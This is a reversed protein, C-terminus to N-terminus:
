VRTSLFRKRLISAPISLTLVLNQCIDYKPGVACRFAGGFPKKDFGESPAPAASKRAITGLLFLGFVLGIRTMM